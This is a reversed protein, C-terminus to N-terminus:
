TRLEPVKCYSAHKMTRVPCLVKKRTECLYTGCSFDFFDEALRGSVCAISVCCLVM